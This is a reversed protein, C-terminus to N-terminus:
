CVGVNTIRWNSGDFVLSATQNAALTVITSGSQQVLLSFAGASARAIKVERGTWALGLSITRNATLTAANYLVFNGNTAPNWTLNVDGYSSVNSQLRPYNITSTSSTSTAYGSTGSV